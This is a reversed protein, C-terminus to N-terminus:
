RRNLTGPFQSKAATTAFRNTETHLKTLDTPLMADEETYNCCCSPPVQRRMVLLYHQDLTKHLQLSPKVSSPLGGSIILNHKRHKEEEPPPRVTQRNAPEEEEAPHHPAHKGRDTKTCLYTLNPVIISSMIIHRLASMAHGSQQQQQYQLTLLLM